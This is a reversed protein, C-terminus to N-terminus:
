KTRKTGLTEVPSRWKQRDAVIIHQEQDKLERKASRQGKETPRGRKRKGNATWHFTIKTLAESKIRCVHRLWKWRRERIITTM